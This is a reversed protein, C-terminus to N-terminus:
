KLGRQPNWNINLTESDGGSGSMPGLIENRSEMTWANLELAVGGKIPAQEGSSM